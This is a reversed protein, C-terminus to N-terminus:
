SRRAIIAVAGVTPILSLVLGAALVMGPTLGAPIADLLPLLRHDGALNLVQRGLLVVTVAAATATGTAPILVLAGLIIALPALAVADGAPLFAFAAVVAVLSATAFASRAARTGTGAESLGLAAMGPAVVALLYGTPSVVGSGPAVVGLLSLAADGACSALAGVRVITADLWGGGAAHALALIVVGCALGVLAASGRHGRLSRNESM